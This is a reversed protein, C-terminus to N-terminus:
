NKKAIQKKSLMNKEQQRCMKELSNMWFRKEAERLM